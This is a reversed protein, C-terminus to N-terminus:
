YILTIMKGEFKKTSVTWPCSNQQYEKLISKYKDDVSQIKKSLQSTEQDMQM